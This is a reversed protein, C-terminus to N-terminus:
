PSAANKDAGGLPAMIAGRHRGGCEGPGEDLPGDGIEEDQTQRDVDPAAEAEAGAVEIRQDESEEEDEQHRRQHHEAAEGAHEMRRRDEDGGGGAAGDEAPEAPRLDPAKQLRKAFPALPRAAARPEVQEEGGGGQGHRHADRDVHPVQRGVHPVGQGIVQGLHRLPDPAVAQHDELRRDVPREPGGVELEELGPEHKKGVVVEQDLESAHGEVQQRASRDVGDRAQHPEAPSPARRRREDVAERRRRQLVRRRALVVHRDGSEIEKEEGEDEVRLVLRAVRAAAKQDKEQNEAQRDSDLGIDDKQRRAERDRGHPRRAAFPPARPDPSAQGGHPPGARQDGHRQQQGAVPEQAVGENEAVREIRGLRPDEATIQEAAIGPAPLPLAYQEAEVRQGLVKAREEAALDEVGDIEM